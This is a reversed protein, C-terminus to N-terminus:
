LIKMTSIFINLATLSEASTLGMDVSRTGEFCHSHMNAGEIHISCGRNVSKQANNQAPFVLPSTDSYRQGGTQSYQILRNQFYFYFNDTTM